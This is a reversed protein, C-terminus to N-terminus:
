NSPRERARDGSNEGSTVRSAERAEELEGQIKELAQRLALNEQELRSRNAWCETLSMLLSEMQINM